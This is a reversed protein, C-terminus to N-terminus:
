RTRLKRVSAVFSRAQEPADGLQAQPSTVAKWDIDPYDRAVLGPLTAGQVVADACLQRVRAQADVRSMHGGLRFSIAEAYILGHRGELNARMREGRPQLQTVISIALQLACGCAMCIQPLAHWELM